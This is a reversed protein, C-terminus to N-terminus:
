LSNIFRIMEVENKAFHLYYFENHSRIFSMVYRFQRKIDVTNSVLQKIMKENIKEKNVIKEIKFHLSKRLFFVRDVPVGKKEKIFDAEKEPNPNQYAIFHNGRKRVILMDDALPRFKKKLMKVATSKGAGSKGLFLYAKDDKEIASGHLFFGWSKSLLNELVVSLLLEFQYVSIQYYTEIHRPSKYRYYNIFVKQQRKDAIVDQTLNWIFDITFDVHPHVTTDHLIFGSLTDHVKHIIQHYRPDLNKERFNIKFIFGGIEAIYITM